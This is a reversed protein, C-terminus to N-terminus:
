TQSLTKFFATTAVSTLLTDSLQPVISYDLLPDTPLVASFSSKDAAPSLLCCSPDLLRPNGEEPIVLPVSLWMDLTDSRMVTDTKTSLLDRPLLVQIDPYIILLDYSM